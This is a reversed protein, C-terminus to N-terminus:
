LAGEEFDSGTLEMFVTELTPESSHISKVRNEEFYKAIEAASNKSNELVLTEGTTLLIHIKNQHNYERCIEDPQGYEVINGKHLLAVNDCLKNAEEM